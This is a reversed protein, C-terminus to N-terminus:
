NLLTWNGQALERMAFEWIVIRRGRAGERVSQINNGLAERAGHTLWDHRGIRHVPRQLHYSLQPALGVAQIGGTENSDYMEVFSDGILLIDSSPDPRWPSGSPAFVQQVTLRQPPYLADEQDLPLNLLSAMDAHRSVVMRQRTYRVSREEALRVKQTLYDALMGAALEAGQPSWHTDNRLFQETGQREQSYMEECMDLMLIGEQELRRRFAPWSRNQFDDCRQQGVDPNFSWPRISVKDPVPFVVLVVGIEKLLRHFQIIALRPDTQILPEASRRALQSPELFGPGTVYRVDERSFLWGDRGVLVQESGTGLGATLFWQVGPRVLKGAPSELTMMGEYNRLQWPNLAKIAAMLGRHTEAQPQPPSIGSRDFLQRSIPASPNFYGIADILPVAAITLVLAVLLAKSVGPSYWTTGLEALAQLERSRTTSGEAARMPRQNM